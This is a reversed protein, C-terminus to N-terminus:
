ALGRLTSRQGVPFAAADEPLAIRPPASIFTFVCYSLLLINWPTKAFPSKRKLQLGIMVALLMIGVFSGGAPLCEFPIPHDASPDAPGPRVVGRHAAQLSLVPDDRDRPHIARCRSIGGPRLQDGCRRHQSARSWRRDPQPPESKPAARNLWVKWFTAYEFMAASFRGTLGILDEQQVNSRPISLRDTDRMWAERETTFALRYGCEELLDRIEPCWDGNPYAFSSCPEKLAAEIALKSTCVETKARDLIVSTLIQHTHSHSGFAIGHRRMELIQEWSMTSDCDYFAAQEGDTQQLLLALHSERAEASGYKLSEILAEVLRGARQGYSHRLSQYM